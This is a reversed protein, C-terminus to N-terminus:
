KKSFLTGAQAWNEPNVEDFVIYVSEPPKRAVDQLTQTFRQAIEAKQDETLMRIM